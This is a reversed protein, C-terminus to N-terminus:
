FVWDFLLLDFGLNGLFFEFLFVEKSQVPSSSPQVPNSSLQALEAERRRKRSKVPVNPSSPIHKSLTM